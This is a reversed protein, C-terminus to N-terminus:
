GRFTEAFIKSGAKVEDEASSKKVLNATLEKLEKEYDLYKLYFLDDKAKSEYFARKYSAYAVSLRTILTTVVVKATDIGLKTLVKDVYEEAEVHDSRKSFGKILEDEIDTISSYKAM